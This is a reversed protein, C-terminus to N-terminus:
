NGCQLPTLGFLFLLSDVLGNAVEKRFGEKVAIHVGDGIKRRIGVARHPNDDVALDDGFRFFVGEDEAPKRRAKNEEAAMPLFSRWAAAVEYNENGAFLPRHLKPKAAIPRTKGSWSRKPIKWASNKQKVFLM